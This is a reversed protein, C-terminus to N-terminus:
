ALTALNGSSVGKREIVSQQGAQRPGRSRESDARAYLMLDSTGNAPVKKGLRQEGLLLRQRFPLFRLLLIIIRFSCRTLATTRAPTRPVSKSAIGRVLM